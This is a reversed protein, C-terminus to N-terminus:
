SNECILQQHDYFFAILRYLYLYQAKNSINPLFLFTTRSMLCFDFISHSIRFKPLVKLQKKALGVWLFVIKTLYSSVPM